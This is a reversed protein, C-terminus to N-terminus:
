QLDEAVCLEGIVLERPMQDVRTEDVHKIERDVAFKASVEDTSKGEIIDAILRGLIPLFKYGHGSGATAFFLSNEYDPKYGIVWDSDVSDNYWCLRTAIFNKEALAPYVTRLGDRLKKVESKPISLGDDPNSSITRPTSIGQVSHLYGASHTAMKVINNENPPFIYFGSNFDLVVPYDRYENGEEQTLQVMAVCQGSAQFLKGQRVAPFASETWSGTALVVLDAELVTGDSCRVGTIKQGEKILEKAEKGPLIRGGLATIKNMIVSIGQGANAWGNDRNLYGRLPAMRPMWLDAADMFEVREGLELDNLYSKHAYDSTSDGGSICFVGSEHYADDWETQDRWAAIAEQGLKAYFPDSYSTRVIRNIDNSAGDPAPLTSAKDIITVNTWGRKLLHLATSCGFVGSGVILTKRDTM